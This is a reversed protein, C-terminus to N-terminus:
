FKLYTMSAWGKLSGYTIYAWNGDVSKVTVKAGRKVSGLVASGTGPHKRVNLPDYKTGVRATATKATWSRSVWGVAGTRLVKVKYWNGSKGKVVLATGNALSAKIAYGTGAGTRLHLPSGNTKVRVVDGSGASPKSPTTDTVDGICSMAIWGSFSGNVVVSAYDRETYYVKVTDGVYATGRKSSSSSAKAYVTGKKRIVHTGTGLKKTTGDIYYTRIWGSHGSSKVKVKSWKGSTKLVSVKSNHYAYHGTIDYDYGPGERLNITGSGNRSVYVTKTSDAFAAAPLITVLLMATLLIALFRKM